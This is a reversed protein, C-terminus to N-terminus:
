CVVMDLARGMPWARSADREGRRSYIRACYDYGDIASRRGSRVPARPATINDLFGLWNDADPGAQSKLDSDDLFTVDAALLRAFFADNAFAAILAVDETWRRRVAEYHPLWYRGNVLHGAREPTPRWADWPEDLLTEPLWSSRRHPGSM